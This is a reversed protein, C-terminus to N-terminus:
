HVTGKLKGLRKGKSGSLTDSFNISGQYQERLRSQTHSETSVNLLLDHYVFLQLYSSALGLVAGFQGHWKVKGSLIPLDLYVTNTINLKPM